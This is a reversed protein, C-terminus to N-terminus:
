SVLLIVLFNPNSEWCTYLNGKRRWLTWVASGEIAKEERLHKRELVESRLVQRRQHKPGQQITQDQHRPKKTPV